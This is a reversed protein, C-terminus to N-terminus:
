RWLEVPIPFQALERRKLRRKASAFVEAGYNKRAMLADIESARRDFVVDWAARGDNGEPLPDLSILHWAGEILRCQLGDSVRVFRPPDQPKPPRNRSRKRVKRVEPHRHAPLRVMAGM